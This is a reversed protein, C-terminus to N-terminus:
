CLIDTFKGSMLGRRVSSIQPFMLVTKMQRVNRLVWIACANSVKRTSSMLVNVNDYGYTAVCLALDDVTMANSYSRSLKLRLVLFTTSSKWNSGMHTKTYLYSRGLHNHIFSLNRIFLLTYHCASINLQWIYRKRLGKIQCPCLSAPLNWQCPVYHVM